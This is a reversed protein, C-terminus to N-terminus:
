RWVKTCDKCRKHLGIVPKFWEFNKHECDSMSVVGDLVVNNKVQEKHLSKLYRFEKLKDLGHKSIYNTAEMTALQSIEIDIYKLEM